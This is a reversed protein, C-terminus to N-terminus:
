SPTCEHRSEPVFARWEVRAYQPVGCAFIVVAAALPAVRAWRDAHRWTVAVGLLAPALVPLWLILTM